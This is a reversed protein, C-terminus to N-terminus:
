TLNPYRVALSYNGGGSYSDVTIVRLGSGAPVTTSIFSSVTSAGTCYPTDDDCADYATDAGHLYLVTDFVPNTGPCTNAMLIGGANAPCTMFWYSNEPGGGGCTGRILGTGSTTGTTTYYTALTTTFPIRTVPGNGVPYHEFNLSGYGTSSGYGSVILYYTGPNLVAVAQSHLDPSACGQSTADDNCPADGPVTGAAIPTTCSSAFQLISDFTSGTQFTDAYVMERDTLTFTFFVDAGSSGCSTAFDHTANVTDVSLNISPGSSLNIVTAGACHDNAPACVSAQCMLVTSYRDMQVACSGGCTGCDAYTDTLNVECGDAYTINCDGYGANCSAIACAYCTPGGCVALHTCAGTANAPACANGCTVCNTATNLPAECGNSRADGDCNGFGPNCTIACVGGACSPTGNASSCPRGCGGCNAVSTTIATECGNSAIGDCDGYGSNCVFGCTGSGCSPTANARAPCVNGCSGCNLPDTQLNHCTGACYTSGVACVSNCVSGSCVTGAACATHCTGCNGNSSTLDTECGNSVIGDCNGWGPNCSGIACMGSSCLGTAHAPACTMGCGGCSATGTLLSAECGNTPIGDCNGWGPLCATLTCTGSSCAAVGNAFSCVRGCTGCNSTATNTDVECGDSPVHDCDAFHANCSVITCTSATCGATADALTCASGCAGCDAPTSTLDTECGNIVSGDCNGWGTACVIGCTSAACTATGHVTSCATGCAGCHAPDSTVNVECGDAPNHNCDAWGPACSAIVCASSVCAPVAHPLSCANGCAGCNAASTTIDTECGNSPIGDCDGRGAACESRACVGLSCVAGASPFSCGHHCAGCDLVDTELNVECGDAPNTNCDGYGAACTVTCVGATCVPSDHNTSCPSGCMGCNAPDNAVDVECGDAPLGNCDAYGTNCVFGCTSTACTATANPPVTCAHGCTGCAAVSSRLDTECGNAPNMDCDGYGPSCTVACHGATCRPASSAVAPCAVGCAGCATATTNLDTECGNTVNMDCNGFGESCAVGCTGMACAPAANAETPCATGCAGCNTPDTAVHTECGNTPNGDCDRTGTTDICRAQCHGAVCSATSTATSPCVTGCGGCNNPDSTIDTCTMGCRQFAGTCTAMCAYTVTGSVPDTETGCLATAGTCAQTCSGCHAPQSLDAECGNTPDGDCDGYGTTCSNLCHGMTCVPTANARADCRTGCAGCHDNSALINVECGNSSQGDCNGTGYVCQLVCAGNQCTQHPNVVQCDYDQVCVSQCLGNSTCVEPAACDSTYECPAPSGAPICVRQHTSTVGHCVNGTPCDADTMCPTRCYRAACVDPSTCDSDFVCQGPPIGNSTCGLALALVVLLSAHLCIGRLRLAVMTVALTRWDGM